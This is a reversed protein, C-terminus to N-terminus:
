FTVKAYHKRNTHPCGTIKESHKPKKSERDTKGHLFNGENNSSDDFSLSEKKEDFNYSNYLNLKSMHGPFSNKVGYLDNYNSKQVEKDYEPFNNDENFVAQDNLKKLQHGLHNIINDDNELKVNSINYPVKSFYNKKQQPFALGASFDQSMKQMFGELVLKARLNELIEVNQSVQMLHLNQIESIKSIQEQMKFFQARLQEKFDPSTNKEEKSIENNRKAISVDTETKLADQVLFSPNEITELFDAIRSSSEEKM